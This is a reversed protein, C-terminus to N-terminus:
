VKVNFFYDSIDGPDIDLAAVSRAMEEQTFMTKGNLKSSLATPSIGIADAFRAETGIKERIRGRLRSYDYSM